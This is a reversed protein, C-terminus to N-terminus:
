FLTELKLVFRVVTHTNPSFQDIVLLDLPSKQKPCSLSDEPDVYASIQVSLNSAETPPGHKM